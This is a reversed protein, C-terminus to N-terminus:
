DGFGITEEGRLAPPIGYVWVTTENMPKVVPRSWGSYLYGYVRGDPALIKWVSPYFLHNDELSGIFASLSGKSEVQHWADGVLKKGDGKADFMIATPEALSLGTWTVDYDKWNNALTETTMENGAPRIAGYNACGWGAVIVSLMAIVSAMLRM